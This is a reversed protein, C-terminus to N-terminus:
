MVMGDVEGRTVKRKMQLRDINKSLQFGYTNM